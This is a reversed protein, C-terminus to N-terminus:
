QVEAVKGPFERPFHQNKLGHIHTDVLLESQKRSDCYGERTHHGALHHQFISVVYM